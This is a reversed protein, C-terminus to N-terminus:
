IHILSLVLGASPIGAAGVSAASATFFVLFQQGLSLDIGYAQAVFVAAIAEYLATGDMNMTAGLPLVFSAVPRPVELNKECAEITVPLTASSSSTSLAVAMAPRIGRLWEVPSMGGVFKVLLPLVVFGHVLLAAVVTVCYKALSTLADLGGEALAGFLLIFVGPAALWMVWEIM